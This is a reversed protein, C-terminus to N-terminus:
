ATLEPPLPRQTPDLDLLGLDTLIQVVRGNADHGSWSNCLQHQPGVTFAVISGLPGCDIQRWSRHHGFQSRECSGGILGSALAAKAGFSGTGVQVTYGAGASANIASWTQVPASPDIIMHAAACETPAVPNSATIIRVPFTGAPLEIAFPPTDFAYPDGVALQGDPLAVRGAEVIEDIVWPAGGAAWPPRPPEESLYAALDDSVLSQERAAQVLPRRLNAPGSLEIIWSLLEHTAPEPQWWLLRCDLDPDGTRYSRVNGAIVRVLFDTRSEGYTCALRVQAASTERPPKYPGSPLRLRTPRPSFRAYSIAELRTIWDVVTWARGELQRPSTLDAYSENARIMRVLWGAGDAGPRWRLWRALLYPAHGSASGLEDVLRAVQDVAVNMLWEFTKEKLRNTQDSVDVPPQRDCATLVAIALGRQDAGPLRSLALVADQADAWTRLPPWAPDRRDVVGDVLRSCAAVSVDLALQPSDRCAALVGSADEGLLMRAFQDAEDV